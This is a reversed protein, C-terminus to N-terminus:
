KAYIAALRSKDADSLLRYLSGGSSIKGNKACSLLIYGLKKCKACRASVLSSWHLNTSRLMPTTKLVADLSKAFNFCVVACRIWAYIVPHYNIICTICMADKEILISWEAAILDAHDLQEFEVLAKQWLGVLQMKISKIIGFESLAAHVAETLTEIPIEKIVVALVRDKFVQFKSGRVNLSLLFIWFDFSQINLCWLIWVAAVEVGVVLIVVVAEVAVVVVWSLDLPKHVLQLVLVSGNFNYKYCDIILFDICFGQGGTGFELGNDLDLDIGIDFYKDVLSAAVLRDVKLKDVVAVPLKDVAAELLKDAVAGFLKDTEVVLEFVIGLEELESDSDREQFKPVPAVWFWCVVSILLMGGAVTVLSLDNAAM